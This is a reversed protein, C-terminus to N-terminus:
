KLNIPLENYKLLVQRVVTNSRGYKKSATVTIINVGNKLSVIKSFNGAKDSLVTEGNIVLNAEAETKGVVTLTTQDTILNAIPNIIALPPPSIIKNVRYGLYVFCASVIFFILINKIIKPMTWFYRAKIIQKSFIEKRSKPELSNIEAEYDKALKKRDLGLFLAYERLFNKGYVGKPLQGYEGKELASLYKESINLKKATDKLKLNKAQRASRLQEAVTEGDLYIKNAKFM